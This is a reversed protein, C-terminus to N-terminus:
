SSLLWTDSVGRLPAAQGLGPHLPTANRSGARQAADHRRHESAQATLVVRVGQNIRELADVLDAGDITKSLYGAAGHDIFREIMSEDDVWIYNM